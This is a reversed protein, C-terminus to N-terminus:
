YLSSVKLGKHGKLSSSSTDILKKLESNRGKLIAHSTKVFLEKNFQYMLGRAGMFCISIAAYSQGTNLARIIDEKDLSDFAKMGGTGLSSVIGASCWDGAGATDMILNSTITFPKLHKWSTAKKTKSYRYELGKSGLTRIELICQQSPFLEEYHKVREESFKIVDTTAVAEKFLRIDSVSIPEFFVLAGNEKCRKALDITGRSARDFYYVRPTVTAKDMEKVYAGLVPKYSPLWTKYDPDRFEFRHKPNGAKDQLVRHIIIPTSGDSTRSIFDKNVNWKQLDKVLENAAKDKRLRAIPTADWGLYGLISLVNGCSGGASLYAPSNPKGNMIVDLAILGAGLVTKVM